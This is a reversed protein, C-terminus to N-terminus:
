SIHYLKLKLSTWENSLNISLPSHIPLEISQQLILCHNCHLPALSKQLLSDISTMNVPLIPWTHVAKELSQLISTLSITHDQSEILIFFIHLKEQLKQPFYYNLQCRKLIRENNKEIFTIYKSISHRASPVVIPKVSGKDFAITVLFIMMAPDFFQHLQQGITPKLRLQNIKLQYHQKSPMM